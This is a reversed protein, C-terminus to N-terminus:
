ERDGYGFVNFMSAMQHCFVIATLSPVLTLFLTTIFITLM